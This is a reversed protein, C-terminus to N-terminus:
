AGLMDDFDDVDLGGKQAILTHTGRLVRLLSVFEVIGQVESAEFKKVALDLDRKLTANVRQTVLYTFDITRGLLMVHRQGIPIEYRRRVVSFYDGGSQFFLLFHCHTLILKCLLELFLKVRCSHYHVQPRAYQRALGNLRTKYEKDLAGVAARDKYHSYMEDSLMFILQDLVLNAEGEIEQYIHQRRLTHVARHAADNYIDLLYLISEIFPVTSQQNAEVVHKTLIWPMSMEIPFQVQKSLDLYFERYWLESLDGLERLIGSFDLMAPFKFSTAYFAELREKDEKELDRKTFFGRSQTAESKDDFLARVITRM